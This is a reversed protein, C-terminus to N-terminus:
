KTCPLGHMSGTDVGDTQLRHSRALAIRAWGNQKNGHLVLGSSALGDAMCRWKAQQQQLRRVLVSYAELREPSLVVPCAKKTKLIYSGDCTPM